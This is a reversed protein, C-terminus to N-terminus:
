LRTLPCTCAATPIPVAALLHNGRAKTRTTKAEQAEPRAVFVRRSEEKLQRGSGDALVYRRSEMGVTTCVLLARGFHRRRENCSRSTEPTEADSDRANRVSKIIFLTGM